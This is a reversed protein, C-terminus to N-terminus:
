ERRAAREMHTLLRRLALDLRGTARWRVVFGVVLCLDMCVFGLVCVRPVVCPQM